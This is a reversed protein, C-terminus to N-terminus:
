FTKGLEEIKASIDALRRQGLMIEDQKLDPQTLRRTWYDSAEQLAQSCVQHREQPSAGVAEFILEISKERSGSVLQLRSAGKLIMQYRALSSYSLDLQGHIYIYRITEGAFILDQAKREQELLYYKDLREM